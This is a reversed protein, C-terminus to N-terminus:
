SRAKIVSIFETNTVQAKRTTDTRVTLSRTERQTTGDKYVFTMIGNLNVHSGNIGTSHMDTVTVRQFQNFFEPSYLSKAGDTMLQRATENDGESM